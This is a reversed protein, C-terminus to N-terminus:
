NDLLNIRVEHLQILERNDAIRNKNEISQEKIPIFENKEVYRKELDNVRLKMEIMENSITDTITDKVIISNISSVVLATIATKIILDTVNINKLEKM